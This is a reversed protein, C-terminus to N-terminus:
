DLLEMAYYATSTTGGSVSAVIWNITTSPLQAQEANPANFRLGMYDFYQDLTM